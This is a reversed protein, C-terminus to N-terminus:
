DSCGTLAIRMSERKLGAVSADTFVAPVDTM